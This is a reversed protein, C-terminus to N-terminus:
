DASADPKLTDINRRLDRLGSLVESVEDATTDVDLGADPYRASVYWRTLGGLAKLAEGIAPHHSGVRRGLEEIDHLRPPPQRAAILMAKAMKEAAQQCHFAATGTAPPALALLAEAARLDDDVRALWREAESWQRPDTPASM